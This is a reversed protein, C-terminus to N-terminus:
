GRRNLRRKALETCSRRNPAMRQAFRWSSALMGSEHVDSDKTQENRIDDSPRHLCQIRQRRPRERVDIRDREGAAPIRAVHRDRQALEAHARRRVPENTVIRQPSRDNFSQRIGADIRATHNRISARL